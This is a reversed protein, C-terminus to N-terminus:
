SDGASVKLMRSMTRELRVFWLVVGPELDLTSYNAIITVFLQVRCFSIIIVVVFTEKVFRSLPDCM